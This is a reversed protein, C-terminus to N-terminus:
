PLFDKIKILLKIISVPMFRVIFLFKLNYQLRVFNLFSQLQDKETIFVKAKLLHLLGRERKLLKLLSEKFDNEEGFIFDFIELYEYDILIRNFYGNELFSDNYKQNCVIPFNLYFFHSNNKVIALLIYVHVYPSDFYVDIKNYNKIINIWLERRFIIVSIYSFVGGLSNCSDMYNSLSDLSVYSSRNSNSWYEVKKVDRYKNLNFRDGLVIDYSSESILSFVHLLSNEAVYDDSGMLWVYKSSSINVSEIFNRPAGINFKQQKYNITVNTQLRINEIMEFTGDNSDNDSVCIDIHSELELEEIQNIISILCRHLYNKRNFTPICISLLM